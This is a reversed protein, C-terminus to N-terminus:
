EAKLGPYSTTLIGRDRLIDRVKPSILAELDAPNPGFHIYDSSMAPHFYLEASPVDLGQLVKIVYAERMRGTQMLGYVRHTFILPLSSLRRLSWRNLLGFILAWAAKVLADDREYSMSLWFDDRPIRIGCAGYRVALPLLLGFITPHVHMHLHGDVHSLPLGTSAFRQFQASVEQQLENQLAPSFYYSLGASTPARRFLGDADVLNPIVEPPLVAKGDALVIHLGVALSPLDRAMSVAEDFADGAVMLSASTLAGSRHAKMVAENVSSSDGFDDANMIVKM